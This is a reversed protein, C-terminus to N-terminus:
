PERFVFVTPSSVVYVERRRPNSQIAYFNAPNGVDPDLKLVENPDSSDVPGGGLLAGLVDPGNVVAAFDIDTGGLFDGGGVLLNGKADFGLSSASLLDVVLTGNAEFDIPAGGLLPVIWQAASFAKIDGTDSPGSGTFGNGTYLNAFLDFTIGASAGGINNIITPNVPSSQSSSNTDLITVVSPSGIAGATLALFRSTIWEGDFHNADFWNGALNSVRFVGVEFNTFSAGGGNGVSFKDGARSVRIFAAGFSSIDAGALTGVSNFARTGPATEIFVQSGIVTIIRGDNLTDFPGGNGPLSFTEVLQYNPLGAAHVAQAPLVLSALSAFLAAVIAVSTCNGYRVQSKM